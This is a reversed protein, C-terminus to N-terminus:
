VVQAKSKEIQQENGKGDIYVYDGNREEVINYKWRGVKIQPQDKVAELKRKKIDKTTKRLAKASEREQRKQALAKGVEIGDFVQHGFGFRQAAHEVSTWTTMGEGASRGMRVGLVGAEIFLSKLKADHGQAFNRDGSVDRRCGTRIEAHVEDNRTYYWLSCECARYTKESGGLTEGDAQATDTM